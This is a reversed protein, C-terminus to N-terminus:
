LVADIKELRDMKLHEAPKNQRWWTLFADFDGGFKQKKLTETAFKCAAIPTASVGQTSALYDCAWFARELDAVNFEEDTAPLAENALAGVPMAGAAALALAGIAIRAVGIRGARPSANASM